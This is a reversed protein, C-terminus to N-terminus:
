DYNLIYLINSSWMLTDYLDQFSTILHFKLFMIFPDCSKINAM